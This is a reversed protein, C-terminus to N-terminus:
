STRTRPADMGRADLYARWGGLETIDEIEAERVTTLDLTMACVERGDQLVIESLMLEAPEAPGLSTRWVEDELEYLEGAVVGGDQAVKVLGPFEGRVAFFRYLPATCVAGLFPAGRLRRHDAQGSMATGNLFMKM